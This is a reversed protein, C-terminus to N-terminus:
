PLFKITIFFNNNTNDFIIQSKHSIFNYFHTLGSRVGSAYEFCQRVKLHLKEPLLSRHFVM